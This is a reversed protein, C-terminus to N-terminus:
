SPTVMLSALALGTWPHRAISVAAPACGEHAALAALQAVVTSMSLAKERRSATWKARLESTVRSGVLNALAAQLRQGVRSDRRSSALSQAVGGLARRPASGLAALVADAVRDAAGGDNAHFWPHILSEYNGSFDFNATAAPLDRLVDLAAEFSDVRLSVKSPLTSHNAMHRTNLFELSVPLRRLMTAEVATGCNLHVVCAANHIVNLVSGRGDVVVNGCAAFSERYLGDNEFPHPRVLFTRDPLAAALGRVTEIYNRLIERSDALMQAVYDPRWGAKVLTAREEEPSRAFRPNVLPFNANVLIYDRRPFDLVGEWRRSAYDFRPCGTVHLREPPMGSGAVFAQHLRSGWFLYGSLLEAYGSQRIYAALQDPANAGDEALVGGETDLVFVPLGMDVYGQVLAFNAPRAYNVILADLDVLPIDVAQDYLPILTARVGRKALGHALM